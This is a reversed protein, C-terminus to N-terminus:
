GFYTYEHRMSTIFAQLNTAHSGSGAHLYNTTESCIETFPRPTLLCNWTLKMSLIVRSCCCNMAVNTMRFLHKRDKTLRNTVVGVVVGSWQKRGDRVYRTNMSAYM